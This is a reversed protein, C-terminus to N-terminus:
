NTDGFLLQLGTNPMVKVNTVHSQEIQSQVNCKEYKPELMCSIVVDTDISAEM